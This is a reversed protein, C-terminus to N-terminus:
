AIFLADAWALLGSSTYNMNYFKVLKYGFSRMLIEIESFRKENEYIEVFETEAYIRKPIKANLISKAGELIEFTNGQADIKLFDISSIKKSFVYQDLTSVFVKIYGINKTLHDLSKDGVIVSKHLSNTEENYNFFFESTGPFNSLAMNNLKIQESSSYKQKLIEFSKPFPEFAHISANPTLQLIKSITNGHHAGIDFVTTFSSFNLRSDSFIDTNEKLFKNERPRFFFKNFRM